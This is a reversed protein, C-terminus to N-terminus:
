LDVHGMETYVAGAPKLESKMLSVSSVEFAPLRLDKVAELAKTWADRSRISKIRGLTLHPTFGRNDREFGIGTMAEDVSAQLSSLKGGDGSLGVWVVRANGPNPFTGVGGVELRFQGTGRVATTLTRMIEQAKAEPVEGLFKLTLHIGEPRPWSADVASGKLQQQVDVLQRKIEDTIEIAIFLRMSKRHIVSSRESRESHHPVCAMVDKRREDMTM